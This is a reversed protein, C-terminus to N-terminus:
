EGSGCSRSIRAQEAYPAGQWDDTEREDPGDAEPCALAPFYYGYGSGLLQYAMGADPRGTVRIGYGGTHGPPM